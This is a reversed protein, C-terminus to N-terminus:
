NNYALNLVLSASIEKSKFPLVFGAANSRGDGGFQRAFSAVDVSDQRSRLNFKFKNGEVVQYSMTMDIEPDSLESNNLIADARESILEDAPYFAVNLDFMYVRNYKKEKVFNELTKDVYMSIAKGQTRISDLIEPSNVLMAWKKFNDISPNNFTMGNSSLFYHVFKTDELKFKWLDRDEVLKLIKPVKMYPNFYLWTLVCAATDPEYIVETIDKLREVTKPNHDIVVLKKVSEKLSIMVEEPYSFELLYLTTESDINLEPLPEQYDVPVYEATSGLLSYAAYASAHGGTDNHFLVISKM